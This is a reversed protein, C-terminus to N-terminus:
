VSTLKEFHLLTDSRLGLRLSELSVIDSFSINGLNVDSGLRKVFYTQLMSNPAEFILSKMEVGSEIIDTMLGFRLEGDSRCIGGRGSERSETIVKLAGAALDEKIYEVWRAPSLEISRTEDKYGVESLVKFDRSFDSIYRAKDRNELAITGNSIEVYKLGLDHCYSKYDEVKKQIVSKEFFTGGFCSEIQFKRAFEIKKELDKTLLASGWGFKVVDVFAHHSEVWDCFSGTSLGNDLVVTWGETRPKSNRQPLDLFNKM